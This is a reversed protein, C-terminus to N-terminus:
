YNSRSNYSNYDRHHRNSGSGGSSSTYQQPQQWNASSSSSSTGRVDSASSASASAAAGGGGGGGGTGTWNTDMTIQGNADLGGWVQSQFANDQFRLASAPAPYSQYGGITSATEYTTGNGGRSYNGSRQEYVKGSSASMQHNASQIGYATAVHRASPIQQQQHRGLSSDKRYTRRDDVHVKTARPPSLILPEAAPRRRTAAGGNEARATTTTRRDTGRYKIGNEAAFAAQQLALKQKSLEIELKAREVKEAEFRIKEREREMELREERLRHEEEKRRLMELMEQERSKRHDDGRGGRSVVEQNPVRRSSPVPIPERRGRVEDRSASRHSYDSRDRPYQQHQQRPNHHYSNNNTNNSRHQYQQNPNRRLQSTTISSPIGREVSRQIGRCGSTDVRASIILSDRGGRSTRAPPSRVRSNRPHTAAAAITRRSDVAPEAYSETAARSSSSGTRGTQYVIPKRDRRESERDRREDREPAQIVARNNTTTTKRPRREEHQEPAQIVQRQQQKPEEPAKIIARKKQLQEKEKEKKKKEAERKREEHERKEQALKEASETLSSESVKEVRLMRGDYDKRHLGTVALEMAEPEAFSIFAFCNKIEGNIPKSNFIKAQVVKGFESALQKVSSAKTNPSMGRIWISTKKSDDTFLITSSDAAAWTILSSSASSTAETTATTATASPIKEEEEIPEEEEDLPDELLEEYDLFIEDDPQFAHGIPMEEEEEKEEEKKEDKGEEEEESDEEFEDEGQPSQIAKEEENLKPEMPELKQEGLEKKHQQEEGDSMISLEQSDEQLIAEKPGAPETKVVQEDQEELEEKAAQPEKPEEASM